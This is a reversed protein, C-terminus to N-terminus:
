VCQLHCKIFSPSSSDRVNNRLLHKTAVCTRCTLNQTWRWCKKEIHSMFALYILEFEHQHLSGTKKCQTFNSIYTNKQWQASEKYDHQCIWKKGANERPLVSWCHLKPQSWPHVIIKGSPDCRTKSTSSCDFVRHAWFPGVKKLSM